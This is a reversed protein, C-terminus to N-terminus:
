SIKWYDSPSRSSPNSRHTQRGAVRPLHLDTCISAAFEEAEDLINRICIDVSARHENVVTLIRKVHASCSFLDLSKAQLANVIPEILASYKAIIFVCIIFTPKTAACHYAYAKARTERNGEKALTDLGDVLM